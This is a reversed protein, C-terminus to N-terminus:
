AAAENDGTMMIVRVGLAELAQVSSRANQKIADGIGIVGAMHGDITVQVVTRGLALLRRTAEAAPEDSATTRGAIFRPSGVAVQVGDVMATVSGATTSAFDEIPAATIDREIAADAIARALPHDGGAEVSA